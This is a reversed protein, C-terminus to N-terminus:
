NRKSKTFVMVFVIVAFPVSLFISWGWIEYLISFCIGTIIFAIIQLFGRKIDKKYYGDLLYLILPTISLLILFISFGKSM